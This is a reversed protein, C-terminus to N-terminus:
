EGHHHMTHSPAAMDDMLRTMRIKASAMKVSELYTERIVDWHEALQTAIADWTSWDKAKQAADLKPILARISDRQVDLVSDASQDM